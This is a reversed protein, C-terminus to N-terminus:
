KGGFLDKAARLQRARIQEEHQTDYVKDYVRRPNYDGKPVVREVPADFRMAYADRAVGHCAELMTLGSKGAWIEALGHYQHVEDLLVEQRRDELEQNMLKAGEEATLENKRVQSYIDSFVEVSGQILRAPTQSYDINTLFSKLINGGHWVDMAEPTTIEEFYFTTNLAQGQGSIREMGIGEALQMTGEISAEFEAPSINAGDDTYYGIAFTRGQVRVETTHKHAKKGNKM